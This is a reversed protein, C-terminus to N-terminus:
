PAGNPGPVVPAPLEVDNGRKLAIALEDGSVDVIGRAPLDHAM